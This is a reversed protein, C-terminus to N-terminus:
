KIITKTYVGQPSILSLFYKGNPLDGTRIPENVFPHNILLQGLNNYINIKKVKVDSDLKIYLREEVPNPYLEFSLPDDLPSTSVLCWGLIESKSNCSINNSEILHYKADDKIYNCTFTNGCDSLNNNNTIILTDLENAINYSIGEIEELQNNNSIDIKQRIYELKASGNIATLNTNNKIILGNQIIELNNLNNVTLLTDNDKIILQGDISKLNGLKPFLTLKDNNIIQFTDVYELSDLGEFDVLNPLNILNINEIKETSRSISLSSLNPNNSVTLFKNINLIDNFANLLFISDNQSVVALEIHELKNLGVFFQLRPNNVIIINGDLEEIESIGNANTLNLNNSIELNSCKVINQLGTLDELLTNGRITIGTAVSTLRLLSDLNFIESNTISLRGSIETCTPDNIPFDDIEQQTNFSYNVQTCQCNISKLILIQLILLVSIRTTNKVDISIIYWIYTNM